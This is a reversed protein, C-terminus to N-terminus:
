AKPVAPAVVPAVVAAAATAVGSTLSAPILAKIVSALTAIHTAESVFRSGASEADTVVTNAVSGTRKAWHDLAVGAIVGLVFMLVILGLVIYDQM